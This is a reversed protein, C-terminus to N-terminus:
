ENEDSDEDDDDDDVDIIAKAKSKVERKRIEKELEPPLTSRLMQLNIELKSDDSKMVEFVLFDGEQLDHEDVLQRWGSGFSKQKRKGYFYIEYIKGLFRVNALVNTSPLISDLRSPFNMHCLPKVASKMLVIDFFPKDGSLPMVGDDQGIDSEDSSKVLETSSEDESEYSSENMTDSSRITESASGDESVDLPEKMPDTSPEYKSVHLPENKKTEAQFMTHLTDWAEKATKGDVIRMFIAPSLSQHILSLAKADNVMDQRLEQMEKTSIRETPEPKKYGEEVSHWLGESILLKKMKKSWGPFGQGSFTPVSFKSSSGVM